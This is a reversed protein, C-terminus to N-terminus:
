KILQELAAKNTANVFLNGKGAEVKELEYWHQVVRQLAAHETTEKEKLFDKINALNAKNYGCAELEKIFSNLAICSAKNQLLYEKYADILQAHLSEQHAIFLRQLNERMANYYPELAPLTKSALELSQLLGHIMGLETSYHPEKSCIFNVLAKGTAMEDNAVILSMTTCLINIAIFLQHAVNM